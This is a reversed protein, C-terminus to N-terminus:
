EEKYALLAQRLENRDRELRLCKPCPGIFEEWNDGPDTLRDVKNITTAVTVITAAGAIVIAPVMLMILGHQGLWITLSIAGCTIGLGLIQSGFAMFKRWTPM